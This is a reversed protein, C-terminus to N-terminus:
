IRKDIAKVDIVGALTKRLLLCDAPTVEGDGDMDAATMDMKIGVEIDAVYRRMYLLDKADLIGDGNVDGSIQALVLTFTETKRRGCDYKYTVKSVGNDVKLINGKVTGGVWDSAKSMDFSGPLTSLDFTGDESVFVMYENGYCNLETLETNRVDLATLQNWDCSLSALATNSSIDLATLQNRLCQLSTLATNKSVDLATLQNSNCSLSTLATNKSVDLATLRNCSCQLTKMETNSSVDLATLQNLGCNLVTLETNSVDLATLQNEGCYLYTLATNKSVDLATLQNRVCYLSTLATFYEIGKLDSINESSCNISTVSGIEAASLVGDSNTDFRSVVKRFNADPFNTEDIAVGTDEAFATVPLMAAIMVCCMLIACLKKKM